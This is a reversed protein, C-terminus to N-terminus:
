WSADATFNSRLPEDASSSPRREGCPYSLAAGTAPADEDKSLTITLWMGCKSCEYARTLLGDRVPEGPRHGRWRSMMLAASAMADLVRATKLRPLNGPSAM